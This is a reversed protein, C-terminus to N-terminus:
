EEKVRKTKVIFDSLSTTGARKKPKKTAEKARKEDTKKQNTARMSKGKEILDTCDNEVEEASKGMFWKLQPVEESFDETELIKPIDALEKRNMLLRFFEPGLFGTGVRAHQDRHSALPWCSDNVHIASLYKMGIVEDFEEWFKSFGPERSIDWGAAFTHCTDICVGVRDKNEVMDIIKKLDTLESGVIRSPDGAMNELVVKVSSTKGHATNISSAIRKISEGKDTGLSSGPHLNYLGIGLQECRQLEDLFAGYSKERKEKDPNGLNILFSGHPVIDTLPNYEHAVCAQKFKEIEEPPYPKSTWNRSSKLWMAFATNGLSKAERVARSVGGEISVHCGVKM